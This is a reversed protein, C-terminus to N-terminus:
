YLGTSLHRKLWRTGRQDNGQVVVSWTGDRNDSARVFRFMAEARKYRGVSQTDTMFRSVHRAIWSGRVRYKKEIVKM